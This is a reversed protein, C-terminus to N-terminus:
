CEDHCGMTTILFTTNSSDAQGTFIIMGAHSPQARHLKVFDRRNQTLVTRNDAIAFALVDPDSQGANGAAQVTLVDHGLDRLYDVVPHPFQEDAYLRAM